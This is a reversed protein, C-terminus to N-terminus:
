SATHSASCWKVVYLTHGDTCRIASSAACRVDLPQADARRHRQGREVVRQAQGLLDGQEVHEGAPPDVPAGAPAELPGLEVGEAHREVLGDGRNRSATSTTSRPTSAALPQREVALVPVEVVDLHQGFGYWCGCGGVHTAAVDGSAMSSPPAARSRRDQHVRVRREGLDAGLVVVVEGLQRGVAEGGGPSM